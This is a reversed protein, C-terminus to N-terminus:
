DGGDPRSSVRLVKVQKEVISSSTMIFFLWTEYLIKPLNYLLNDESIIMIIKFLFKFMKLTFDSFAQM